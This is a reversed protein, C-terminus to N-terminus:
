LETRCQSRREHYPGCVTYSGGCRGTVFCPRFCRLYDTFAPGLGAVQEATM